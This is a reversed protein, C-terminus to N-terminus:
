TSKLISRGSGGFSLRRVSGYTLKFLWAPFVSLSSLGRCKSVLQSIKCVKGWIPQHTHKCATDVAWCIRGFQADNAGSYNPHNILLCRHPLEHYFGLRSWDLEPKLAWTHGAWSATLREIKTSLRLLNISIEVKTSWNAHTHIGLCWRFMSGVTISGPIHKLPVEEESVVDFKQCGGM